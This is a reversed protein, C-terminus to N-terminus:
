ESGKSESSKRHEWDAMQKELEEHREVFFKLAVEILLQGPLTHGFKKLIQNWLKHIAEKLPTLDCKEQGLSDKDMQEWLKQLSTFMEELKHAEDYEKLSKKREKDELDEQKKDAQMRLGEMEQTEQEAEEKAKLLDKVATRSCGEEYRAILDGATEVLEEEKLLFRGVLGWVTAPLKSVESDGNHKIWILAATSARIINNVQRSTLNWQKRCYTEFNAGKWDRQYLRNDRIRMFAQGALVFANSSARIYGECAEFTDM